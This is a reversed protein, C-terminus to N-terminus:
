PAGRPRRPEGLAGGPSALPEFNLSEHLRWARESFDSLILMFYTCFSSYTFFLKKRCFISVPSATSLGIRGRFFFVASFWIYIYCFHAESNDRVAGRSGGPALPPLRPAARPGGLCGLFAGQRFCVGWKSARTYVLREIQFIM